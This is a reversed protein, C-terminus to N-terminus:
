FDHACLPCAFVTSLDDPVVWAPSDGRFRSTNMQEALLQVDRRFDAETPWVHWCEGCAKYDVGPTYPEDVNHWFCRAVETPASM